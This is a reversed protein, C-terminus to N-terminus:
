PVSEELFIKYVPVTSFQRHDDDNSNNYTWHNVTHGCNTVGKYGCQGEILGGFPKRSFMSNVNLMLLLTSLWLANTKTNGHKRLEANFWVQM